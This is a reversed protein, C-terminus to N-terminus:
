YEEQEMVDCKYQLEAAEEFLSQKAMTEQRKKTDLLQASPRFRIPNHQEDEL